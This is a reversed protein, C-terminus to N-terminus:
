DTFRWCFVFYLSKSWAALGCDLNLRQFSQLIDLGLRKLQATLLQFCVGALRRFINCFLGAYLAGKDRSTQYPKPYPKFQPKVLTQPLNLRMQARKLGKFVKRLVGFYPKSQPKLYPKVCLLAWFPLKFVARGVYQM